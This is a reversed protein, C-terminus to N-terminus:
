KADWWKDTVWDLYGASAMQKAVARCEECRCPYSIGPVVSAEVIVHAMADREDRRQNIEARQNEIECLAADLGEYCDIWRKDERQQWTGYEDKRFEHRQLNITKSESM